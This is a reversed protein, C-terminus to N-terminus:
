MLLCAFFHLKFTFRITELIAGRHSPSLWFQLIRLLTLSNSDYARLFGQCPLQSYFHGFHRLIFLTWSAGPLRHNTSGSRGTGSRTDLCIIDDMKLLTFRWRLSLSFFCDHLIPCAMGLGTHQLFDLYLPIMALFFFPPLTTQSGYTTGIWAM